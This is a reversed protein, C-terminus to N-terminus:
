EVSRAEVRAAFEVEVGALVEITGLEVVEEVMDEAKFAAADKKVHAALYSEVLRVEYNGPVVSSFAFESAGNRLGATVRKGVDGRPQLEVHRWMPRRSSLNELQGRVSGAGRTLIEIPAVAESVEVRIKEEVTTRGPANVRVAHRGPELVPLRFRGAADTDVAPSGIPLQRSLGDNDTLWATVRAGEVGRRSDADLVVGEFTLQPQLTLALEHVGGDEVTFKKGALGFGPERIALWYTGAQLGRIVFKGGSNVFDRPMLTNPVFRQADGESQRKMWVRFSAIPYDDVDSVRGRVTALANVVLPPPMDGPRVLALASPSYGSARAVLTVEVEPLHTLRFVGGAETTATTPGGEQFRRRRRLPSTGFDAERDSPLTVFALVKASQVPRGVSDVVRGEVGWGTELVVDNVVPEGGIDIEVDGLTVYGSAQVGLRYRGVALRGFRFNGEEDSMARAASGTASTPADRRGLSVLAGAVANGDVSTVTGSLTSLGGLTITAEEWSRDSSRTLVTKGVGFEVHEAHLELAAGEPMERPGVATFSGDAASYAVGGAPGVQRVWWSRKYGPVKSVIHAGVVPEGKGDLVVGRVLSNQYVRIVIEHGKVERVETPPGYEDYEVRLGRRLTGGIGRITFKGRQDTSVTKEPVEVGQLGLLLTVAAGELPTESDGDLVHGSLASGAELQVGVDARGAVVNPVSAGAFEASAARVTYRGQPVGELHFSGDSRSRTEVLHAPSYYRGGWVPIGTTVPEEIWVLADEVPQQQPDLVVGQIGAAASLATDGLDVDASEIVVERALASHGPSKLDLGYSGDTLGDFEFEGGAATTQSRKESQGELLARPARSILPTGLMFKVPEIDQRRSLGVVVGALPTGSADVARGKLTFGRKLTVILESDAPLVDLLRQPRYGDAFVAIDHVEAELSRLSFEGTTPASSVGASAFVTGEAWRQILYDRVEDGSLGRLRAPVARVEARPVADGAENVIRGSIAFAPTLEIDRRMGRARLSLDSLSRSLFGDASVALRYDGLPLMSFKYVGRSDSEVTPSESAVRRYDAYLASLARALEDDDVSWLSDGHKEFAQRWRTQDMAILRCGVVARGDPDHVRGMLVPDGAGLREPDVLAPSGDQTVGTEGRMGVRPGNTAATDDNAADAGDTVPVQVRGDRLLLIAGVSLLILAASAIALTTKKSTMLLGGGLFTPPLGTSAAAAERPAFLVNLSVIVGTLQKARRRWERPSPQTVAFVHELDRWLNRRLIDEAKRLRYFAAANSIGLSRAVSRTSKGEYFYLFVTERLDDPLRHVARTVFEGLDADDLSPAVSTSPEEVSSLALGERKRQLGRAVNRVIALFWPAFRAPDRLADIDRLARLFAEQVVDDVSSDPVGRARAIACAQRQYRGALQEFADRQGERVRRVLRADSARISFMDRVTDRGKPAVVPDNGSDSEPRM